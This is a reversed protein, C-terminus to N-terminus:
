LVRGGTITLQLALVLSPSLQALMPAIEAAITSRKPPTARIPRTPACLAARRLKV